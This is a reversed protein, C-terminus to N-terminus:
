EPARVGYRRLQLGGQGTRHIVARAADDVDALPAAPDLALAEIVGTRGAAGSLVEDREETFLSLHRQDNYVRLRRRGGASELVTISTNGAGVLPRHRGALGLLAFLVARIVGGHAVVLIREDGSGELAALEGLVREAFGPLTEGTGGIQMPDGRQLALLQEPFRATVEEHLLGCWAGLNMERLGPRPEVAREGAIARATDMARSLDSAVIRDFRERGLRAGLRAAESRGLESLPVDSQGQWRDEANWISQAHRVLVLEM